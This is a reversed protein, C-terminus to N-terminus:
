PRNAYEILADENRTQAAKAPMGVFVISSLLILQFAKYRM